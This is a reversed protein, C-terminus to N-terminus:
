VPSPTTLMAHVESCTADSSPPVWEPCRFLYCASAAACLVGDPLMVHAGTAFISRNVGGGEASRM